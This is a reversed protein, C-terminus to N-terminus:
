VSHELKLEQGNALFMKLAWVSTAGNKARYGTITFADGPKLSTESWGRSVLATRSPLEAQWKQVQGKDDTVDFEVVSHPSVLHFDTVTGKLTVVANKDFSAWGHHADATGPIALLAASVALVTLWAHKM